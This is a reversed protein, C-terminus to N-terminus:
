RIKKIGVATKMADEKRRLGNMAKDVIFSKDYCLINHREPRSNVCHSYNTSNQESRRLSHCLLLHWSIFVSALLHEKLIGRNPNGKARIKICWFIFILFIRAKRSNM